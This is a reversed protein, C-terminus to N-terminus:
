DKNRFSLLVGSGLEQAEHVFAFVLIKSEEPKIRYLLKYKGIKVRYVTEGVLESADHDVIWFGRQVRLRKLSDIVAEYLEVAYARNNCDYHLFDFTDELSRRANRLLRVDFAM